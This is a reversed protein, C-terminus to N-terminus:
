INLQCLIENYCKHFTRLQLWKRHYATGNNLCNTVLRDSYLGLNLGPATWTLNITSLNASSCTKRWTSMKRRDNDNWWREMSMWEVLAGYENMGGVSWVWENRLYHHQVITAISLMKLHSTKKKLTGNWLNTLNRQSISQMELKFNIATVSTKRQSHLLQLDQTWLWKTYLIEFHSRDVDKGSKMNWLWGTHVDYNHSGQVSCTPEFTLAESNYQSTGLEFRLWSM